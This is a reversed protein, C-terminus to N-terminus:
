WEFERMRNDLQRDRMFKYVEEPVYQWWKGDIAMLKRIQTGSEIGEGRSYSTDDIGYGQQAFLTVTLKNHSFIHRFSPCKSEIHNVWMSNRNIDDIPIIVCKHIIGEKQLTRYIMEFRESASWPNSKSYSDQASGIVIIVREYKKVLSKVSQLHGNHFPQFRGVYLVTKDEIDSNAVFEKMHEAWCEACYFKHDQVSQWEAYRKKHKHCNPM